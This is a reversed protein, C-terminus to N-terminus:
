NETKEFNDVHLKGHKWCEYWNRLNNECELEFIYEQFSKKRKFRKVLTRYRYRKM